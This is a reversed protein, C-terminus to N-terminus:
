CPTAATKPRCPGRVGATRASAAQPPAPARPGPGRPPADARPDRATRRVRLCWRGCDVPSQLSGRGSVPALITQSLHNPSSPSTVHTPSLINAKENGSLSPLLSSTQVLARALSVLSLRSLCALAECCAGPTPRRRRAGSVRPARSAGLGAQEKNWPWHRARAQLQRHHGSMAHCRFALHGQASTLSASAM